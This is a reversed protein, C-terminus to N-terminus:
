RSAPRRSRPAVRVAQHDHARPPRPQRRARPRGRGAPPQHRRVARRRQARGHRRHRAPRRAAGAAASGLGCTSAPIHKNGLVGLQAPAGQRHRPRGAPRASRLGRLTRRLRPLPRAASAVAAGCRAAAPRAARRCRRPGSSARRVDPVAARPRAAPLRLRLAPRRGHRSSWARPRSTSPSRPTTAPSSRRASTGDGLWVGLAYPPVPLDAEPLELPAANTVSHNLRADKTACRVTRAIEETTRM